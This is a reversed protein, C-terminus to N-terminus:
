GGDGLPTYSFVRDTYLFILWKLLLTTFMYGYYCFAIIESHYIQLCSRKDKTILM